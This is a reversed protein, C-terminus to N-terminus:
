VPEGFEEDMDDSVEFLEKYKVMNIKYSYLKKERGEIAPIGISLGILPKPLKEAIRKKDTDEIMHGDLEKKMCKLQVPYIALLPNRPLGSKFYTEQSPNRVEGNDTNYKEYEEEIETLKSLTLGAKAQTLSGLRANASSMQLAKSEIKHRFSRIVPNIRITSLDVLEGEGVAITVDWNEVTDDDFDNVINIIDETRFKTNLYHSNFNSLLEIVYRRPVNLIQPTKIAMGESVPDIFQYNEKKLTELWNNLLVLNDDNVKSDSSLYQTEIVQGNLSVLMEYDKAFRMKNRATVLLTNIDSRVSLGFQIPTKKADQMRYVERRLEDSAVSIYGYWEINEENMWVQCLDAYGDRYGFWRGMQMLTDYMKSNRYFYSVCLGELTLGRSLSYGGVAILRLGDEECEDYNLNKAGNGGHVSRVVIPSVSEHLNKQITNWDFECHNFHKEFTDKILVFSEYGLAKKGLLSYGKIERQMERVFSDVGKEIDKQVAIFRSINILMSRHKKQKRLDRVANAIFFSAIAEKLSQPLEGPRFGIKHSNPLYEECDDNDKLMFRYEGNEDFIGRAGIYNTPPDLAYIFDKPFLDDNLMEENSDPNIFINAFPTATYGVYSAKEFLSLLKRIAANITTPDEDEKRTNVSANDAEDDILLLPSSIKGDVANYIRLWQELKELVSKNKKIVFLVPVQINSLKCGLRTATAKNFDSTTSTLVFGSISPNINGVGVLVNDKDKILASSDLGVFGKDIRAQTQKRLKEITGTLLIVVKYGSDAAKNILGTYTSTKGSQVDGIVLGRRQFSYTENPNGLMDMMEDTSKDLANVVNSNFNEEKQLYIAYRDWFDMKLDPKKAYYWSKHSQDKICAGRDMRIMLKSHLDIAVELKEEESLPNLQSFFNIYQNIKDENVVENVNIQMLVQNIVNQQNVTM